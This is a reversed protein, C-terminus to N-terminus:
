WFSLVMLAAASLALVLWVLGERRDGRHLDSMLSLLSKNKAKTEPYGARYRAIKPVLPSALPISTKDSFSMETM